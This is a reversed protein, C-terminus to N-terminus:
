GPLLVCPLSSSTGVAARVPCRLFLSQCVMIVFGSLRPACRVPDPGRFARSSHASTGSTYSRKTHAHTKRALLEVRGAARDVPSHIQLMQLTHSFHPKKPGDQLNEDWQSELHSARAGRFVKQEIETRSSADRTAAGSVFPFFPLGGARNENPM